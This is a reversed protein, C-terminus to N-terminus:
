LACLVQPVVCGGISAAAYAAYAIARSWYEVRPSGLLVEQVVFQCSEM